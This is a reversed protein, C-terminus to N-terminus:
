AAPGKSSIEKKKKEKKEKGNWEAEAKRIPM